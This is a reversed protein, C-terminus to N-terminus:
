VVEFAMGRAALTPALTEAPGTIAISLREPPVARRFASTVDGATPHRLAEMHQNVYESTLGAAALTAAQGAVDGATENALPGVGILYRRVDDIEEPAFDRTLAVADLMRRTADATVDVSFSGTLGFQGGTLRTAFGGSIGYTYGLRERLELNLRSAFAGAIAHGGLKLAAWDPHERGPTLTALHVSAQAAAPMDVLLFRPTGMESEAAAKGPAGGRWRELHVCLGDMDIGSMDGAVVMTAGTPSYYRAHWAKVYRPAITRLTEPTGAAPRGERQHDGFLATRLTQRGMAGPSALRTEFAAVQWEVHREVDDAAYEPTSLVEAFLELAVPLRHVPADLSLRTWSHRAVGQVAAGQLELLETIRGAPNQRTGEDLAGLAVTGLGEMGRPEVSLPTPLILDVAAVYQRPLDFIWLELGTELLRVEPTPFHWNSAPSVPPRM